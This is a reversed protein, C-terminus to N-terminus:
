SLLIEKKCFPCIFVGSMLSVGIYQNCLPCYLGHQVQEIQLTDQQGGDLELGNHKAALRPSAPNLCNGGGTVQELEETTLECLKNNLAEVEEKRANLEEKTKM